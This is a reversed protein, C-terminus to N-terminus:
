SAARAYADRMESVFRGIAFEGAARKKGCNIVEARAPGDELARTIAEAFAQTDGPAVLFGCNGLVEPTAGSAFAVVPTGVAMAEVAVYGFGEPRPARPDSGTAIVAVSCAALIPLIDFRHEVWTIADGLSRKALGEMEQAYSEHVPDRGGIFLFRVEPQLTKVAVGAEIFAAHGKVPHLRGVLAVVPAPEGIIGKLVEDGAATDVEVSSLGPMVVATEAKGIKSKGGTLPDLVARSVGVVLSCRRAVFRAIVADWSFDHKVWVVPLTLRGLACVLAAKVGNAHVVKAPSASVARRVTRSARLISVVSGSTPIVEVNFGADQFRAVLPGDALSIVRDIEDRGLHSVLDFLYRESGGLEAHSSIFLVKTTM